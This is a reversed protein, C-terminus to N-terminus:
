TGEPLQRVPYPVTQVRHPVPVAVADSFGAGFGDMALGIM